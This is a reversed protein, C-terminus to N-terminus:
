SGYAVTWDVQIPTTTTVKIQLCWLRGASWCCIYVLGRQSNACVPWGPLLVMSALDYHLRLTYKRMTSQAVAM